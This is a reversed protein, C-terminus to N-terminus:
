VSRKYADIPCVEPMHEPQKQKNKFLCSKFIYKKLEPTNNVIAISKSFKVNQDFPKFNHLTNQHGKKLYETIILKPLM